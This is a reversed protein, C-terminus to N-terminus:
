KCKWNEGIWDTLVNTMSKGHLYEDTDKAELKVGLYDLALLVFPQIFENYVIDVVEDEALTEASFGIPAQICNPVNFFQVAAHETDDGDSGLDDTTTYGPRLDLNEVARSFPIQHKADRWRVGKDEKTHSSAMREVLGGPLQEPPPLARIELKGVQLIPGKGNLLELVRGAAKFPVDKVFRFGSTFPSVLFETDRTFPGKFIDFRMAGTNTIALAKKGEAIRPAKSLQQPFVQESLLTFISEQSPYPARNVYFTKPSCGVKKDLKLKKRAKTINKSVSLGVDTDFTTTNRGSHHHFSYLNNDIYRRSFTVSKTKSEREKADKGKIGDVSLFGITELYRGSAMAVSKDDFVAFDRVHVHGGFFVVPTDWQAERIAKYIIKYETMRVGVHGSVVIVDVERDQLVEVFWKEKVTQAVPQVVTNNANGVFDFLFGFALVRLKLNKTEFKRFRQALPERTGRDPDYIDLNSALYSDRFNPVTQKLEANSSNALYLEHNGSCIVDVDQSKYIDYYYKGKPESGDFLGNGEIRDGTDVVIVDTGTSDARARLHSTLSIYDGWDASFSPEQLHGGLWGHVDTTHLFNLQAWPLDRLPAEYPKASSPQSSWSPCVLLVWIALFSSTSRLIM